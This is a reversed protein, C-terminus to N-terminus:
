AKGSKLNLIPLPEFRRHNCRRAHESGQRLATQSPTISEAALTTGGSGRALRVKLVGDNDAELLLGREASTVSIAHDLM